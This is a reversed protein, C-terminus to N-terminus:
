RASRRRGVDGRGAVRPPVGARDCRGDAASDEEDPALRDIRAALVASISPPVAIEHLPRALRYHGPGGALTADEVLTRVVEEVFFPNGGTRELVFNALPALSLDAGLLGGLLEAVGEERLPVLPLQRYYSHGM